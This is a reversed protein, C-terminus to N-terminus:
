CSPPRILMRQSRWVCIWFIEWITACAAQSQGVCVSACAHSFHNIHFRLSLPRALAAVPRPLFSVTKPVDVHAEHNKDAKPGEGEKPEQCACKWHVLQIMPIWFQVGAWGGRCADDIKALGDWGALLCFRFPDIAFFCAPLLSSDKFCWCHHVM